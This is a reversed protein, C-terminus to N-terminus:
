KIMVADDLNRFHEDGTVVKVGYNRGTALVISDSMGWTKDEKKMEANIIGAGEALKATLKILASNAEIFELDDKWFDWGERKYKHALEAIVITPTINGQDEIYKRASKGEKSGKFYEIWAYSDIVYESSM